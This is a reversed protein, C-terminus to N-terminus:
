GSGVVGSGATTRTEKTKHIREHRFLFLEILDNVCDIRRYLHPYELQLKNCLSMSESRTARPYVHHTAHVNIGGTLLNVFYSQPFVDWSHNLKYEISSLEIEKASVPSDVDITPRCHTIYTLYLACWIYVVAIGIISAFHYQSVLFFFFPLRSVCFATKSSNATIFFKMEGVFNDGVLCMEDRAGKLEKHHIENHLTRWMKTSMVCCDLCLFAVLENVWRSKDFSYHLCDHGITTLGFLGWGFPIFALSARRNQMHIHSVVMSALYVGFHVKTLAYNKVM